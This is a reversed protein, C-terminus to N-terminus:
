SEAMLFPASTLRRVGGGQGVVGKILAHLDGFRRSSTFVSKFAAASGPFRAPLTLGNIQAARNSSRATTLSNSAAPASKCATQVHPSAMVFAYEAAARLSSIFAYKFDSPARFGVSGVAKFAPTSLQFSKLSTSTLAVTSFAASPKAFIILPM